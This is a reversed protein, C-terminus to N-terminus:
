PLLNLPNVPLHDKRIEFHLHVGTTRGTDGMIGLVEGARILEGEKAYRKSLHAYYTFIGDGHDLIILNGYGGSTRESKVVRGTKAAKIEMDGDRSIIDIGYHYKGWRPGFLSSLEPEVIPWAFSPVPAPKSIQLSATTVEKEKPVNFPPSTGGGYESSPNMDTVPPAQLKVQIPFRSAIHARRESLPSIQFNPATKRGVATNNRQELITPPGSLFLDSSSSHLLTDFGIMEM